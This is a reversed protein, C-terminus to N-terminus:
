WPAAVFDSNAFVSTRRFTLSEPLGYRTGGIELAIPILLDFTYDLDVQVECPGGTRAPDECASWEDAPSGGPEVLTISVSPNSCTTGAGVYDDLYRSAVCARAEMAAITTAENAPDWNPSGYAGFDAAERAASEVTIMTTYLRAMDAVAVLLLLAIPLVLAFEVLSQGSSRQCPSPHNVVAACARSGGGLSPQEM